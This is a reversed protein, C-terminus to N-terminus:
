SARQGGVPVVACRGPAAGPPLRQGGGVAGLQPGRRGGEGQEASRAGGGPVSPTTGTLATGAAVSTRTTPAPGAPDAAAAQAARAPCSTTRVSAATKGRSLVQPSPSVG